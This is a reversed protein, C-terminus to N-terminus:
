LMLRPVVAPDLMLEILVPGNREPLAGLAANLDGESTVQYGDGGMARAMEAFSPWTFQSLAPDMQRDEFQVYEAGYAQDNCVVVVLNLQDRVASHFEAPNGLMLGGDGMVLLITQDPRAHAAGIAHAMGMGIAGTGVSLLMNRGDTTNIREWATNLFRGGDSVFVRDAPLARDVMDMAREVDITGPMGPRSKAPPIAGKPLFADGSITEVFQSSPIEAEDIWHMLTNAVAASDGLLAADASQFVELADAAVDVQILRVGKLYDGKVTTYRGLSAGFAIICDAGAIVEGGAPTSLTGCVGLDHAAGHFFGKAKLTTALPAGIREALAELEARAGFAGRGALVIPARAAAIIGVADELGPGMPPQGGLPGFVAKVPSGSATEWMMDTPMNLVVPKRGNWAQRFAIAADQYVTDPSRLRVFGAGTANVLAEQAVRQPHHPDMIPTDGALLVMPLRSKVGEILATVANSLAPGQTVTAASVGGTMAAHGLAMLVANEEVIAPVLRGEEARVFADAMFLNSDGLLGFLTDIGQAALARAIAAHVTHETKSM